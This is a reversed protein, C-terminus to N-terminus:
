IHIHKSTWDDIKCSTRGNQRPLPAVNQIARYRITNYLPYETQNAQRLLNPDFRVSESLEKNENLFVIHIDSLFVDFSYGDM